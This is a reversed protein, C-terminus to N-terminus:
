KIGNGYGGKQRIGRIRGADECGLTMNIRMKWGNPAEDIFRLDGEALRNKKM